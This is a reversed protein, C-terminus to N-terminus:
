FPIDDDTIEPTPTPRSVTGKFQVDFIKMCNDGRRIEPDEGRYKIRMLTGVHETGIKQVLDYTGLLKFTRQDKPNRFTFQTVKKGRLEIRALSTLVGEVQQGPKEFSILDPAHATTWGQEETMPAALEPGRAPPPTHEGRATPPMKPATAM